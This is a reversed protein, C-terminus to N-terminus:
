IVGSEKLSQLESESLGLEERYLDKNHDGLGPGLNDITGPTESLTPFVNPVAVDGVGPVKVHKIAERAKFHEDQFIDAISNISGAPVGNRTCVDIIKERPLSRTWKEVEKLVQVRNDLRTAQDGFKELLDGREMAITLREFM